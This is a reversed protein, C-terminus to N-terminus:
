SFIHALHEVQDVLDSTAQTAAGLGRLTTVISALRRGLRGRKRTADGADTAADDDVDTLAAAIEGHDAAVDDVEAIVEAPVTGAPLSRLHESLAALLAAVETISTGSITTDTTSTATTTITGTTM